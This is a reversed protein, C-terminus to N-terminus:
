CGQLYGTRELIFDEVDDYDICFVASFEDFLREQASQLIQNDTVAFKKKCGENLMKAKRDTFCKVLMMLEIEDGRRIVEGAKERRTSMDDVWTPATHAVKGLDKLLEGKRPLPKMKEVLEPNNAPVYVKTKQKHHPVLVYYDGQGMDMLGTVCCAGSTGYLVMEGIHPM